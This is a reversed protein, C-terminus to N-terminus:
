RAAVIRWLPRPLHRLVTFVWRVLGPSWITTRGRALGEVIDDAVAEPTTTFPQAEMGETM